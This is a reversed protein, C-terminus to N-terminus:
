VLTIITYIASAIAALVILATCAARLAPHAPEAPRGDGTEQDVSQKALLNTYDPPIPPMSEMDACRVRWDLAAKDSLRRAM